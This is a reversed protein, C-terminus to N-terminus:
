INIINFSGSENILSAKVYHINNLKLLLPEIEEPTFERYVMPVNLMKLGEFEINLASNYDRNIISNCNKCIYIRQNLSLQQKNKCVYCTKTSPYFRDIEIPTHVRQKLSAIIGGLSTSQIKSGFKSKWFNLSEDQFCITQFNNKLYSVIKNKIDQKINTLHQYEKNLKTKTKYWNKSYQKQKSLKRSLCKIKDSIPIEYKINIGNSLTLQSSIGFDIGISSNNPIFESKSQFTTIQIFYDGNKHILNANAIESNQPIQSLGSVKLNQKIKQIHIHNKDVIKYTGSNDKIYQKLPISFSENKFKMKGVKLGKNKITSLSKINDKMKDLIAQRMQASLFDLTRIYFACNVKITIKNIKYSQEFIDNKSLIFNYFWKSELFLRNLHRISTFNLHSKDVKVTFVKCQQNKRRNQTLKLSYRIKDNKNM